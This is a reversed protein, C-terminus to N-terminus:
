AFLQRLAYFHGQTPGRAAELHHGLVNPSQELDAFSRALRLLARRRRESGLSETPVLYERAFPDVFGELQEQTYSVAEKLGVNKRWLRISEIKELIQALTEVREGQWSESFYLSDFRDLVPGSLRDFVSRCRNLARGCVIGGSTTLDGCPCLNSTAVFQLQCPFIEKQGRRTIELRGQELPGRLSEQIHPHFELYEDLLLMGNHAKSLEGEIVPVGGGIFSRVPISHHPHIFPRWGEIPDHPDSQLYYLSEALTSKGSGSPGVFIASHRGLATITLAQAAQTSFVRSPIVPRRSTVRYIPNKQLQFNKLDRLENIAFSPFPLGDTLPATILNEISGIQNLGEPRITTGSLGLEAYFSYQQDVSEIQGSELLIAAALALDLGYSVIKFHNPHIHILIQQSKPWQFGSRRIAAKIRPIADKISPDVSGTFQVTPLGRVLSVHIEIPVYKQHHVAFSYIKM